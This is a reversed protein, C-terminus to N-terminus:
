GFHAKDILEPATVPRDKGLDPGLIVVRERRDERTLLDMVQEGEDAQSAIAGRQFQNVAAPQAQAFAQAQGDVVNAALFVFQEDAVALSM